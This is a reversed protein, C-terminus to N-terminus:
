VLLYLKAAGVTMRGVFDCYVFEEEDVDDDM